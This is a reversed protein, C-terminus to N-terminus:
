GHDVEEQRPVDRRHYGNPVIREAHGLHGEPRANPDYEVRSGIASDLDGHLEQFEDNLRGLKRVLVVVARVVWAIAGLLAVGLLVFLWAALTSM